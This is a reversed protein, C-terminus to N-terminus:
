CIRWLQRQNLRTSRGQLDIVQQMPVTSSAIYRVLKVFVFAKPALRLSKFIPSLQKDGPGSGSALRTVLVCEFNLPVRDATLRKDEMKRFPRIQCAYRAVNRQLRPQKEGLFKRNGEPSQRDALERHIRKRDISDAMPSKEPRADHSGYTLGERVRVRM